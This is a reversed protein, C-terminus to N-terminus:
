HPSLLLLLVLLGSVLLLNPLHSQHPQMVGPNMTLLLTIPHQTLAKHILMAHCSLLCHLTWCHRLKRVSPLSCRLHLQHGQLLLHLQHAQLLLAPPHDLSSNGQRALMATSQSIVKSLHWPTGALHRLDSLLMCTIKLKIMSYEVLLFRNSSHCSCTQQLPTPTICASMHGASSSSNRSCSHHSSSSQDWNHYMTTSLMTHTLQHHEWPNMFVMMTCPLSQGQIRQKSVLLHLKFHKFIKALNSTFILPRPSLQNIQLQIPTHQTSLLQSLTHQTSPLQTLTQQISLPQTLTHQTSLLQTLTHQTSLLQILAHLAAMIQISLLHRLWKQRWLLEWTLRGSLMHCTTTTMALMILASMVTCTLMSGRRLLAGVISLPLALLM